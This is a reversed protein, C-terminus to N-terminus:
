HTSHLSVVPLVGSGTGPTGQELHVFANVAGPKHNRVDKRSLQLGMGSKKKPQNKKKPTFKRKGRLL